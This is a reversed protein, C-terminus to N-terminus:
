ELHRRRQADEIIGTDAFYSSLPYQYQRMAALEAARAREYQLWWEAEVRARDERPQRGVAVARLEDVAVLNRLYASQRASQHVTVLDGVAARRGAVMLHRASEDHRQTEFSAMLARQEAASGAAEENTPIELYALDDTDLNDDLDVDDLQMYEEKIGGADSGEARMEERLEGRLHTAARAMDLLDQEEAQADLDAAYSAAEEKDFLARAAAEAAMNDDPYRKRAM